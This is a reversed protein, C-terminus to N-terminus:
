IALLYIIQICRAGSESTSVAGLHSKLLFSRTRSTEWTLCLHKEAPVAPWTARASVSVAARTEFPGGCMVNDNSVRWDVDCKVSWCKTSLQAHAQTFVGLGMVWIWLPAARAHRVCMLVKEMLLTWVTEREREKEGLWVLSSFILNFLLDLQAKVGTAQTSWRLAPEPWQCRTPSFPPIHECKRKKFYYPYVHVPYVCRVSVWPRPAVANMHSDHLPTALLPSLDQPFAPVLVFCSILCSSISHWHIQVMVFDHELQNIIIKSRMVAKWPHLKSFFFM